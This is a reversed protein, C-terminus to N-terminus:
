NIGKCKIGAKVNLEVRYILNWGTCKIGARIDLKLGLELGYM